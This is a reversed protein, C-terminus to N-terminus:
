DHIDVREARTCRGTTMDLTFLAGELKCPGPAAEFRGPGEVFIGGTIGDTANVRLCEARGEAMRGGMLRSSASLEPRYIGDKVRVAARAEPHSAFWDHYPADPNISNVADVMEKVTLVYNATKAAPRRIDKGQINM